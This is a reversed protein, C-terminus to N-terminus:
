CNFFLIKPRNKNDINQKIIFNESTKKQKNESNENHNTVNKDEKQM